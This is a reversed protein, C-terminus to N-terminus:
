NERTMGFQWGFRLWVQWSPADQSVLRFAIQSSVLTRFIPNFSANWLIRLVVNKQLTSTPATQAEPKVSNVFYPRPLDCVQVAVVFVSVEVVQNEKAQLVVVLVVAFRTL